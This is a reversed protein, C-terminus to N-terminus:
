WEIDAKLLYDAGDGLNWNVKLSWDINSLTPYLKLQTLYTKSIMWFNDLNLDELLAFVMQQLTLANLIDFSYHHKSLIAHRLASDGVLKIYPKGHKERYEAIYIELVLLMYSHMKANHYNSSDINAQGYIVNYAPFVARQIKQYLESFAQENM